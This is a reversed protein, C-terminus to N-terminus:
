GRVSPSMTAQISTADPSSETSKPSRVDCYRLNLEAQALNRQANEATQDPGAQYGPADKLLQEFIRDIEGKPDRKYFDAVMQRPSKDFSHVVGLQAPPRWSHRRRRGVSSFTQDLDAPVHALDDGM